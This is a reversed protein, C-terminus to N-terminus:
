SGRTARPGREPLDHLDPSLALGVDIAAQAHPPATRRVEPASAVIVEVAPRTVKGQATALLLEPILVHRDDDHGRDILHQVTASGEAETWGWWAEHPRLWRFFSGLILPDYYSRVVAAIDFVRLEPAARAQPEFLGATMASGVAVYAASVGLEQGYISNPTLRADARAGWLVATDEDPASGGTLKMRNAIFTQAAPDFNSTQLGKIVAQEDRLPSHDPLVTLWGYRLAPHVGDRGFSNLLTQRERDSAPRAHVVFGQLRYRPNGRHATQVGVLARQLSAGTVTGLGFVLVSRSGAIRHRLPDDFRADIPFSVPDAADPAIHDKIASWFGQFDSHGHEHEPVLVLTADNGFGQDSIAADIRGCVETRFVSDALMSDVDLKVSMPLRDSRRRRMAPHPWSEVSVADCRDAAEWLPRNRNPDGVSPTIPRLQARLMGDFSFPNIPIIRSRKSDRCLECDEAIDAGREALPQQGPLPSWAEVDSLETSGAKNVLIVIRGEVSAVRRALAARVRELLRGSSSVSIVVLVRGYDGAGREIAEDVDVTARPYQDLTAVAGLPRGARAMTLAVSQAVPTLTGTDLVLGTHDSLHPALWSALVDADRPERVADGLKIYSGAHEGSPLRYHYDEPRWIARGFELMGELEAARASALLDATQEDSLETGHVVEVTPPLGIPHALIAVRMPLGWREALEAIQARDDAAPTNIARTRVLLTANRQGLLTPPLNRLQELRSGDIDVFVLPEPRSADGHVRRKADRLSVYADSTIAM